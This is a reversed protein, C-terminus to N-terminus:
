TLCEGNNAREQRKGQFIVLSGVSWDTHTKSRTYFIIKDPQYHADWVKSPPAVIDISNKIARTAM